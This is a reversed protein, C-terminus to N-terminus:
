DRRHQKRSKGGSAKPRRSVSAKTESVSPVDVGATESRARGPGAAMPPRGAWCAGLCILGFLMVYRSVTKLRLGRIPGRPMPVIFPIPLQTGQTFPRAQLRRKRSTGSKAM